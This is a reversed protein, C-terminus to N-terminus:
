CKGDYFDIFLAYSPLGPGDGWGDAFAAYALKHGFAQYGDCFVTRDSTSMGDWSVELSLLSLTTDADIDDAEVTPAVFPEVTPDIAPTIEATCSALMVAAALLATIKHM